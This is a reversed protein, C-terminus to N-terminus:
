PRICIKNNCPILTPGGKPPQGPESAPPPPPPPPAPPVLFWESGDGGAMVPHQPGYDQSQTM